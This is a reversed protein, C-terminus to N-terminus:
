LQNYDRNQSYHILPVCIESGKSSRQSGEQQKVGKLAKLFFTFASCFLKGKFASRMKSIELHGHGAAKLSFPLHCWAKLSM